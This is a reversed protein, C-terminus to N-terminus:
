PHDCGSLTLLWFARTAPADFGPRSPHSSVQAVSREEFTFAPQELFRVLEADQAPDIDCHYYATLVFLPVLKGRAIEILNDTPM